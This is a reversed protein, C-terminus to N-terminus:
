WWAPVGKGKPLESDIVEDLSIVGDAKVSVGMFRWTPNKYKHRPDDHSVELFSTKPAILVLSKIEKVLAQSQRRLFWLLLTDKTACFAETGAKKAKRLMDQLESTTGHMLLAPPPRSGSPSFNPHSPSQFFSHGLPACAEAFSECAEAFSEAVAAGPGTVKDIALQPKAGVGKETIIVFGSPM